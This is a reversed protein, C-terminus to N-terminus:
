QQQQKQKPSEGQDDLALIVTGLRITLIMM